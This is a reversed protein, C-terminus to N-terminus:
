EERPLHQEDESVWGARSSWQDHRQPGHPPEADLSGAPVIIERGSRTVHPVPCGCHRCVATAFSRASPLDYRSISESGALWRFQSPAVALNSARAAGTAKRCRSCYCHTFRVLPLDLAYRVAGCLCSGRLASESM